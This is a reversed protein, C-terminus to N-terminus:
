RSEGSELAKALATDYSERLAEVPIEFLTSEGQVLKLSTEGTFGIVDAAINYEGAIRKAEALNKGEVSLVIRSPDEAFLWARSDVGSPLEVAAGVGNSM